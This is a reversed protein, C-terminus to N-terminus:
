NYMYFRYEFDEWILQIMEVVTCQTTYTNSDNEILVTFLTRRIFDQPATSKLYQDM